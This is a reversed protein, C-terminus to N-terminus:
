HHTISSPHRHIPMVTEPEVANLMRLSNDDESNRLDYHQRLRPNVIVQATLSDLKNDCFICKNFTQGVSDFRQDHLWVDSQKRILGFLVLRKTM